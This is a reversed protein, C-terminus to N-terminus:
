SGIGFTKVISKQLIKQGIKIGKRLVYKTLYAL